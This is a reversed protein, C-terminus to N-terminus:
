MTKTLRWSLLVIFYVFSIILTVFRDFYSFINLSWLFCLVPLSRAIVVSDRFPLAHIKRPKGERSTSLPFSARNILWKAIDCLLPRFSFLFVVLRLPSPARLPSKRSRICWMARFLGNFESKGGFPPYVRASASSSGRIVPHLRKGDFHRKIAPAYISCCTCVGIAM